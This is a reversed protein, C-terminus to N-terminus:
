VIIEAKTFMNSNINNHFYSFMEHTIELLSLEKNEFTKIKITSNNETILDKLIELKDNNSLNNNNIITLILIKVINIILYFKRNGLIFSTYQKDENDLNVAAFYEKRINSIFFELEKRDIAILISFLIDICEDFVGTLNIVSQIIQENYCKKTSVEQQVISITQALGLYIKAKDENSDVFLKDENIHKKLLKFVVKILSVLNLKLFSPVSEFLYALSFEKCLSDMSYSDIINQLSSLLSIITEKVVQERDQINIIDNDIEAHQNALLENYLTDTSSNLDDTISISKIDEKTPFSLKLGYDNYLIILSKTKFNNRPTQTELFNSNM